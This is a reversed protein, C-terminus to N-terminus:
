GTIETVTGAGVTVGKELSCLPGISVNEGLIVDSAVAASEHIGREYEPAAPGLLEALISFGADANEVRILTGPCTGTWDRNVVVASAGTDAVAESYRPNALFSIDGAGADALAGLGTIEVSDDGEVIGGLKEAIEKITM